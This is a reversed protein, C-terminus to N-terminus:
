NGKALDGPLQKLAQGPSSSTKRPSPHQGTGARPPRWAVSNSGPETPVSESVRSLRDGQPLAGFSSSFSIGGSKARLVGHPRNLSTTRAATPGSPALPWLDVSMWSCLPVSCLRGATPQAESSGLNLTLAPSRGQAEPARYM